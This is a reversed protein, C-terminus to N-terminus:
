WPSRPARPALFWGAVGGGIIGLQATAAVGPWDQAPRSFLLMGAGFGLLGGVFAGLDLWRTRAQAPGLARATALAAVVGVAEGVLLWRGIARGDQLALATLGALSAGWLGGSLMWSTTGPDPRLTAELALAAGLGLTTGAWASVAATGPAAGGDLLLEASVAGGALAGLTLGAGLATPVGRRVPHGADLLYATLVGAGLGAGALPLATQPSLQQGDLALSAALGTAVGYAGLWTYLGVAEPTDRPDTQARAPAAALLAAFASSRATRRIM